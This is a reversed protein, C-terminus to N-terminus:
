IFGACVSCGLGWAGPWRAPREALWQCVERRGRPQQPYPVQGYAKMWSAGWMYYRCRACDRRGGGHRALHATRSESSSGLFDMSDAQSSTSAPRKAAPAVAAGKKAGSSSALMAGAKRKMPLGDKETSSTTCPRASTQGDSRDHGTQRVATQGAISVRSQRSKACAELRAAKRQELLRQVLSMISWELCDRDLFESSFRHVIHAYM